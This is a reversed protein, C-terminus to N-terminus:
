FVARLTQIVCSQADILRILHQLILLNFVSLTLFLKFTNGPNQKDDKDFNSYDFRHGDDWIFATKNVTSRQAGIWVSNLAKKRKFVYDVLFDQEEQSLISALTAAASQKKCL